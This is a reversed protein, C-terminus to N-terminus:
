VRPASRLGRTGLYVGLGVAATLILGGLLLIPLYSSPSALRVVSELVDRLDAVRVLAPELAAVEELSAQLVAVRLLSGELAAVRSLNENLAAAASLAERLAAVDGLVSQLEAVDALQVELRAVRDLSKMLEPAMASLAGIDAEEALSGILASLEALPGSLDAMASDLEGVKRDLSGVTQSADEANATSAQIAETNRLIRASGGEIADQLERASQLASCGSFLVGTLVAAPLLAGFCRLNWDEM